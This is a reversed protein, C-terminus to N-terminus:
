QPAVTDRQKRDHSEIAAVALAAVQVMCRRFKRNEAHGLKWGGFHWGTACAVIWNVWHFPTNLADDKDNGWRRVQHERESNIESLITERSM